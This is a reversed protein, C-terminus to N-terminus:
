SEQPALWDDIRAAMLKVNDDSFLTDHEGPLVCTRIGRPAFQPWAQRSEELMPDQADMAMLHLMPAGIPKPRIFSFYNTQAQRCAWRKVAWGPNGDTLPSGCLMAWAARRMLRRMLRLAPRLTRQHGSNRVTRLTARLVSKWDTLLRPYGPVPVDFLLLRCARGHEELLRAIEFAVVGGYCFGGVVVTGAAPQRLILEASKRAADEISTLSREHWTSGPRLLNMGWEPRAFRALQRFSYGEAGDSPVMYFAVATRQLTIPILEMASSAPAETLGSLAEECMSRLTSLTPAKFFTADSLKVPLGFVQEVHSLMAVASLSDGGLSFYDEDEAVRDLNLMARWAGALSDALDTPVEFNRKAQARVETARKPVQAAAHRQPSGSFQASLALRKPKGTAGRPIADVQFVVRPIKHPSLKGAAFRRLDEASVSLGERPVVACAVDEGLTEHGISFTAVERVAAHGCLVADVEDPIVKQGGRNIMEKIRGTVHLYGGADLRGLDGTLFWGDRFGDRNADADNVYGHMVNSGRVVIQGEEGSELLTGESSMIAIEPGVGRGICGAKLSVYDSTDLATSAIAGTETLGYVDLVPVKFVEQLEARLGPPLITGGSRIFRLSTPMAVPHTALNKLIARHLTPGGAYWTPRQTNMWRQFAGPTYEQALLVTGGARLQAWASIIGQIHFLKAMLLLRDQRGLCLVSGSHDLMASLNGRTLPVIKRRGTTASTHLLVAVDDSLPRVPRVIERGVGLARWSCSQEKATVEVSGLGLKEAAEVLETNDSSCIVASAGLEALDKEFEAGTLLPNLPACVYGQMCGLISVLASMPDQVAVAVVDGAQVRATRLVQRMDSLLETLQGYTLSNEGADMLALADPCSAAAWSIEKLLATHESAQMSPM